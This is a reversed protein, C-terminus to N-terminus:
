HKDSTNTALTQRKHKDSRNDTANTALPQRQQKPLTTNPNPKSLLQYWVTWESPRGSKALFLM